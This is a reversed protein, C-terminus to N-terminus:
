EYHVKVVREHGLKPRQGLRDLIRNARVRQRKGITAILKAARPGVGQFPRLEGLHLFKPWSHVLDLPPHGESEVRLTLRNEERSLLLAALLISEYVSSQDVRCVSAEFSM